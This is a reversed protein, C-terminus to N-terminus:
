REWEGMRSRCREMQPQISHQSDSEIKISEGSESILIGSESRRSLISVKFAKETENWISKRNDRKHYTRKVEPMEGVDTQGILYFLLYFLVAANTVIREKNWLTEAVIISRSRRRDLRNRITKSVAARDLNNNSKSKSEFHLLTVKCFHSSQRASIGIQFPMKMTPSNRQLSPFSNTSGRWRRPRFHFPRSIIKIWNKM